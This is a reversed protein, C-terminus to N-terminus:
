RLACCSSMRLAAGFAGAGDRVTDFMGMFRAMANALNEPHAHHFGLPQPAALGSFDVPGDHRMLRELPCPGLHVPRDKISFLRM